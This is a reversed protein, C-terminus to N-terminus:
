LQKRMQLSTVAYGEEEYLARAGTNGGHVNLGVSVVERSRCFQEAARMIARGYGRRRQSEDVEIDYIWAKLGEADPTIRLWIMGVGGDAAGGDAAGGDAAGGHPSDGHARFFFDDPSQMGQPLLRRYDAAAKEVAAEWSMDGSEAILKAYGEEATASYHAFQADTMPELRIEPM